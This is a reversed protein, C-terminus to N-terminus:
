LSRDCAFALRTRRSSLARYRCWVATMSVAGTSQRHASNPALMSAGHHQRLDSWQVYSLDPLLSVTQKLLVQETDVPGDKPRGVEVILLKPLRAIRITHM